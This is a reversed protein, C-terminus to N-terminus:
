LIIVMVGEGMLYMCFALLFSLPRGRMEDAMCVFDLFAVDRGASGSKGLHGFAEDRRIMVTTEYVFWLLATYHLCAM